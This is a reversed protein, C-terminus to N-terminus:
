ETIRFLRGCSMLVECDFVSILGRLGVRKAHAASQIQFPEIGNAVFCTARQILLMVVVNETAGGAVGGGERRGENTGNSKWDKSNAATTTNPVKVNWKWDKNNAATRNNQVKVNWTWDSNNAVTRSNPVKVHKATTTTTTTIRTSNHLSGFFCFM